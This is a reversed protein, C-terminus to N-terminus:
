QKGGMWLIKKSADSFEGLSTVSKVLYQYAKGQQISNDTFSYVSLLPSIIKFPGGESRFLSSKLDKNKTSSLSWSLQPLGKDTVNLQVNNPVELYRKILQTRIPFGKTISSENAFNDVATVRYRYDTLANISSDIFRNASLISKNLKIFSEDEKNLKRYVNYGKLDDESNEKWSLLISSEQQKGKVLIPSRPAKKDALHIFVYASTESVNGAADVAAVAYGYTLAVNKRQTIQTKYIPKSADNIAVSKVMVPRENQRSRLVRYSQVDTSASASWRLNFHTDDIVKFKISRVQKPAELDKLAAIAPKSPLSRDGEKNQLIVRYYYRTQKELQADGFRQQKIDLEAILQGLDVGSNSQNKRRIPLAYAKRYILAKTYHHESPLQWTLTASFDTTKAMVQNAKPLVKVAQEASKAYSPMFVSLVALCLVWPSIM